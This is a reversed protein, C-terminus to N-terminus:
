GGEQILDVVEQASDDPSLLLQLHNGEVAEMVTVAAQIESGVKLILRASDGAGAAQETLLHLVAAGDDTFVIWALGGSFLM